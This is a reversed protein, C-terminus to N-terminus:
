KQNGIFIKTDILLQQLVGFLNCATLSDYNVNDIYKIFIFQLIHDIIQM